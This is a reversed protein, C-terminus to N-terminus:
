SDGEDIEMTSFLALLVSPYQQMFFVKKGTSKIFRILGRLFYLCQEYSAGAGVIKDLWGSKINLFEFTSFLPINSL